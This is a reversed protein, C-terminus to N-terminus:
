RALPSWAALETLRTIVLQVHLRQLILLHLAGLLSCLVVMSAFVPKGFDIDSMGPNYDCRNKSVCAAGDLDM